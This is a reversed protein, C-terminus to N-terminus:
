GVNASVMQMALTSALVNQRSLIAFSPLIELEPPPRPHTRPVDTIGTGLVVVEEHSMTEM